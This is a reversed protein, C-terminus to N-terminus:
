GAAFWFLIAVGGFIPPCMKMPTISTRAGTFLSVGAMVVLMLSSARYVITATPDDAGQLLTIISVLLGIFCLALGEMIWEMILIRKNNESLPGFGRVISKTPVVIHAVGWFVIAASGTYLLIEKLM